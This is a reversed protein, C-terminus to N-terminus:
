SYTGRSAGLDNLAAVTPLGIPGSGTGSNQNKRRNNIQDPTINGLSPVGTRVGANPLTAEVVNGAAGGALGSLKGSIVLWGVYFGVLLFALGLVAKM